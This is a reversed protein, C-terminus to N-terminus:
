FSYNVFLQDDKHKFNLSKEEMDHTPPANFQYVESLDTSISPIVKEKVLDAFTKGYFKQATASMSELEREVRKVWVVADGKRTFTKTRVHNKKTHDILNKSRIIGKFKGSKTKIITAM